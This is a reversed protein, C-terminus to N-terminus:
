LGFVAGFWNACLKFISGSNTLGSLLCAFGWVGILGTFFTLMYMGTLGTSDTISDEKEAERTVPLGHEKNLQNINMM